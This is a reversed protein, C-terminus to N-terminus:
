PTVTIPRSAEWVASHTPEEIARLTGSADDLARAVAPELAANAAKLYRAAVPDGPAARAAAALEAQAGPLDGLMFLLRGRLLRLEPDLAEPPGARSLQYRAEGEHGSLWNEWAARVHGGPGTFRRPDLDTVAPREVTRFSRMAEENRPASAGYLALPASFELRPRDDTNLPAGAAYRRADEEGLFFRFVLNEGHWGFRTFDRELGPSAAVRREIDGMDLALTEPTAILLFDNPSAAWISVHPFVEQFTRVVMQMDRAFISYNQLWQVFVGRPALRDRAARYFDLTFLGAVGAIWPNSPESVILDYPRPATALISRGDGDLVRLRPDALVGRNEDAFFRSAQRMAPELEAVDIAELPHQAIAGATVGSALGIVLARRADPALLAGLHGLLLQTPMDTDNSADGKGNVTLTTGGPDRVVAVTTSIGEDYFLLERGESFRRLADSGGKVFMEAYVAAGSTMLKPDWHPVALALAAFAFPSGWALIRSRRSAVPATAVM